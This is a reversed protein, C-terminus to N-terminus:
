TSNSLLVAIWRAVYRLKNNVFSNLQPHEELRTLLNQFEPQQLKLQQSKGALEHRQRRQILDLVASVLSPPNSTSHGEDTPPPTLPSLIQKDQPTGHASEPVPTSASFGKEDNM